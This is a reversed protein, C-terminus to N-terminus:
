ARGAFQEEGGMRALLRRELWLVLV